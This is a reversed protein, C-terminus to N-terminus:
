AHPAGETFQVKGDILAQTNYVVGLNLLAAVRQAFCWDECTAVRRSAEQGRKGYRVEYKDGDPVWNVSSKIYEAFYRKGDDNM